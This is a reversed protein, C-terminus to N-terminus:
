TSYFYSALAYYVIRAGQLSKAAPNRSALGVRTYLHERAHSDRILSHRTLEVPLDLSVSPLYTHCDIQIHPQM